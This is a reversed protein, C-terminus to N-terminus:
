PTVERAQKAEVARAKRKQALAFFYQSRDPRRKLGCADRDDLRNALASQSSGIPKVPLPGRGLELSVVARVVVPAGYLARGRQEATARDPATITGLEEGISFPFKDRHIRWRIDSM